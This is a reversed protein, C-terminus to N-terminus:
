GYSQAGALTERLTGGIETLDEFPEPADGIVSDTLAEVVADLDSQTLGQQLSTQARIVDRIDDRTIPETHYKAVRMQLAASLTHELECFVIRHRQANVGTTCLRALATLLKATDSRLATASFGDFVFWVRANPKGPITNAAGLVWHALDDAYADLNATQAPSRLTDGGLQAVLDNAVERPGATAGSDDSVQYHCPVHDDEQACFNDILFYTWSKGTGNEGSIQLVQRFAGPDIMQRLIGRLPERNAFPLGSRLIMAEMPHSAQPRPALLRRHMDDLQAVFGANEILFNVVWITAPVGDDECLKLAKTALVRITSVGTPLDARLNPPVMELVVDQATGGQNVLHTIMLDLVLGHEEDLLVSM